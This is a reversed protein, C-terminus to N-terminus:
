HKIVSAVTCYLLFYSESRRGSLRASDLRERDHCDVQEPFSLLTYNLTMPERNAISQDESMMIVQLNSLSALSCTHRSVHNVSYMYESM